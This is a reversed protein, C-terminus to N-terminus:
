GVGGQPWLPHPVPHPVRCAPVWSSCAANHPVRSSLLAWHSRRPLWGMPCPRRARHNQGPCRGTVQQHAGMAASTSAMPILTSRSPAKSTCIPTLLGSIMEWCGWPSHGGGAPPAADVCPTPASLQCSRFTTSCGRSTARRPCQAAGYSQRHLFVFSYPPVAGEHRHRSLAEWGCVEM